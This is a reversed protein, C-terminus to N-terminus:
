WKLFLEHYVCKVIAFIIYRISILLVLWNQYAKKLQVTEYHVM